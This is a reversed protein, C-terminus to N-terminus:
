ARARTVAGHRTASLAPQLAADIADGLRASSLPPTVVNAQRPLEAVAKPPAIPPLVVYLVEAPCRELLSLAQAAGYASGPEIAIAILEACVGVGLLLEAASEDEAAVVQHGLAEIAASLEDRWPDSACLLLVLGESSNVEATGDPQGEGSGGVRMKVERVYNMNGFIFIAHLLVRRVSGM